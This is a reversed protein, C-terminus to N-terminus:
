DLYDARWRKPPSSVLARFELALRRGQCGIRRASSQSSHVGTERTVKEGQLHSVYVVQDALVSRGCRVGFLLQSCARCVLASDQLQENKELRPANQDTFHRRQDSMDSMKGAHPKDRLCVASTSAVFHSRAEQLGWTALM